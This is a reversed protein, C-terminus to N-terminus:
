TGVIVETLGDDPASTPPVATVMVPVFKIAPAVTFIPPTAAVLTTNTFEVEMVAFVGAPAAPDLGITTVVVPPEVM